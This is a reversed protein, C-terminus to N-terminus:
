RAKGRSRKQSSSSQDKVPLEQIQKDAAMEVFKEGRLMWYGFAVVSHMLDYSLAQVAPHSNLADLLVAPMEEWSGLGGISKQTLFQTALTFTFLRLTSAHQFMQPTSGSPQISVSSLPLILPLILLIRAALITYILKGGEGAYELASNLSYLYLLPISFWAPWYSLLKQNSNASQPKTCLVLYFLSQAFSTPLIELLGFFAWLNPVNRRRGEIGMYIAVAVTSWLGSSSLLYRPKTAVIAEGFDQFLSSTTSWQWLHLPTRNSGILAGLPISHNTSWQKYSLILVNLMHYSLTSFSSGTLIILALPIKSRGNNQQHSQRITNLVIGTFGLAAVIYAWFILAGPYNTPADLDM